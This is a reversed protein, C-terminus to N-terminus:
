IFCHGASMLLSDVWRWDPGWHTFCMIIQVSDSAQGPETSLMGADVMFLEKPARATHKPDNEPGVTGWILPPGRTFIDAAVSFNFSSRLSSARILASVLCHSQPWLHQPATGVGLVFMRRDLSEHLHPFQNLAAKNCASKLALFSRSHFIPFAFDVLTIM